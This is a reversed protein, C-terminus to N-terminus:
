QWNKHCAEEYLLGEKHYEKFNYMPLPELTMLKEQIFINGVAM